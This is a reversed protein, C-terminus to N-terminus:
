RSWLGAMMTISLPSITPMMVSASTAVCRRYTNPTLYATAGKERGREIAVVSKGGFGEHERGPQSESREEGRESRERPQPAQTTEGPRSREGKSEV